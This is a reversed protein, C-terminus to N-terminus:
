WKNRLSRLSLFIAKESSYDMGDKELKGKISNSDLRLFPNIKKEDALTTIYSQNNEKARKYERLYKDISSNDEERDKSFELNREMYDHGPYIEVNDSLALFRENITQYLTEEDGSYCNGVGANFLTDGTFVAKDKENEVLVVSMHGMTHGPTHIIRLYSNEDLVIGEEDELWKDAHSIKEKAISSALIGAAYDKRLKESEGVHDFHEHTILIGRLALNKEEILEKVPAESTPDICVAEGDGYEILYSYNGLSNGINIPHITVM